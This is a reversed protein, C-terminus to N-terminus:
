GAWLAASGAHHAAPASWTERAIKVSSVICRVRKRHGCAVCVGPVRRSPLTTGPLHCTESVFRGGNWRPMIEFGVRYIRQGICDTVAAAAAVLPAPRASLARTQPQLVLALKRSELEARQWATGGRPEANV